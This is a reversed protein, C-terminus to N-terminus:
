GNKRGKCFIINYLKGAIVYLGLKKVIPMLVKKCKGVFTGRGYKQLVNEFSNNTYYNEFKTRGAPKEAPYELHPQWCDMRSCQLYDIKNIIWNFVKKGKSSNVLIQSVGAELNFNNELQDINWFDALTIDSCRKYSTFDCQFCSNRTILLSRYLDFFSYDNNSIDEGRTNLIQTRSKKWGKDKNRFTYAGVQGRDQSLFDIYQKWITPSSVGHCVFDILILKSDDLKWEEAYKKVGECQCPTGSFLVYRGEKLDKKILDYVVTNDSQIYKSGRFKLTDNVNEARGHRVNWESDFYVGYVIGGHEFVAESLATFIGGSSSEKLCELNKIQGAYYEQEFDEQLVLQKMQCVRVCKGCQICKDENVVPYPFGIENQAIEIASVPCVSVCANCGCCKDRDVNIHM